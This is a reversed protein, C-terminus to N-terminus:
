ELEEHRLFTVVNNEWKALQDLTPYRNEIQHLLRFDETIVGVHNVYDRRIAMLVFDGHKLKNLPTNRNLRRFGSVEIGDTIMTKKYNDWEAPRPFTPLTIDFKLKYYDCALTLCDYVSPIYPRDMLDHPTDLGWWIPDSCNEGDCGVIGWAVGMAKQSQMDKMSPTRIDYRPHKTAPTHSHVVAQVDYKLYDESDIVFDLEPEKAHNKCPVFRGEVIFGCGEKPYQQIMYEKMNKLNEIRM